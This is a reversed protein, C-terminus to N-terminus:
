SGASCLGSRAARHVIDFLKAPGARFGIEGKKEGV